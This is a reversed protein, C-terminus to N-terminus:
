HARVSFVRITFGRIARAHKDRLQVPLINALVVLKEAAEQLSGCDIYNRILDVLQNLLSIRLPDRWDNPLREVECQLSDLFESINSALAMSTM